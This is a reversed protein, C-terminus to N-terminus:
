LCRDTGKQSTLPLSTSHVGLREILEDVRPLPYSDRKSITNVARFDICFRVSGDPKPVLVIPSSWESQSPRIVGLALMSKIEQKIAERRAAPICYPKHKIIKGLQTHVSHEAMSTRGPLDSFLSAYPLLTDQLAGKQEKTLEPNVILHPLTTESDTKPNVVHLDKPLPGLWKKLLNIHYLQTRKPTM